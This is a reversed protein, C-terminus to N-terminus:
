ALKTRNRKRLLNLTTFLPIAFGHLLSNHPWPHVSSSTFSYLRFIAQPLAIPVVIDM